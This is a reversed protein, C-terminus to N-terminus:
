IKCPIEINISTADNDNTATIKGNHALIIDKCISLGLGTGGNKARTKTSQFFPEFIKKQENIPIGIGQDKVKIFVKNSKLSVLVTIPLKKGYKVANDLINRIVQSIKIEDCSVTIKKNDSKLTISAIQKFENICNDIISVINHNQFNFHTKQEQNRAIDLMNTLLNMLRQNNEVLTKLFKKVEDKSLEHLHQYLEESIAKIIHLPTRIEHSLNNLFRKKEDLADQLEQTQKYLAKELKKQQTIDISVGVMGHTKGDKDILPSKHSLFLMEKNNFKAEEEIIKSQQTNIVEQDHAVIKEYEKKNEFLEHDHKGVVAKNSELGFSLAQADNCGLYLGETNKWYVHGPTKAIINEITLTNLTNEYELQKEKSKQQSIDVSVGFVGRIKRQADFLPSKHSIMISNKGKIKTKEEVLKAVGTKIIEIDNNRIAEGLDKGLLEIDTKNIIDKSKKFGLSQAQKLNCGLYRGELDKWYVHGPILNVINKLSVANKDVLETKRFKLYPFSYHPSMAELKLKAFTEKIPIVISPYLFFTCNKSLMSLVFIALEEKIYQISLDQANNKINQHKIRKIYLDSTQEIVERYHNDHNYLTKIYEYYENFDRHNLWEDWRHIEYPITLKAIYQQNREIWADGANRSFETVEEFTKDSSLMFHSYRQLTDCVLIICKDFTKNILELTAEMKAAEHYPQGVSIPVICNNNQQSKLLKTDLGIFSAKVIM